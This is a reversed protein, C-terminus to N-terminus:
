VPAPLAGQAGRRAAVLAQAAGPWAPHEFAFGEALLRGPVVRRSKRVLETDTRLLWAGLAVMWGAAPLGV